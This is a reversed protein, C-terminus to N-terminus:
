GNGKMLWGTLNITYNEMDRWKVMKGIGKIFVEMKIIFNALAM